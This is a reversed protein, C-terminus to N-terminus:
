KSNVNSKLVFTNSETIFALKILVKESIHFNRVHISIYPSMFVKLQQMIRSWEGEANSM